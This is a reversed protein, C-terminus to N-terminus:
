AIACAGGRGKWRTWAPRTGNLGGMGGTGGRGSSVSLTVGGGGVSAAGAAVGTSGATAGFYRLGLARLTTTITTTAKSPM